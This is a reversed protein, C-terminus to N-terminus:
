DLNRVIAKNVDSVAKIMNSMGQAIASWSNMAQQLSFQKQVDSLNANAMIAQMNQELSALQNNMPQTFFVLDLGDRPPNITYYSGPLNHVEGDSPNINGVPLINNFVTQVM